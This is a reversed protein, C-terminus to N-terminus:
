ICPKDHSIWPDQICYIHAPFCEQRCLPCQQKVKLWELLCTWCFLHGCTAVTTDQRQGLCLSCKELYNAEEGEEEEEMAHLPNASLRPSNHWLAQAQSLAIGFTVLGVLLYIVNLRPSEPIRRPFYIYRLNLVRRIVDPYRGQWYFLARHVLVLVLGWPGPTWAASLAVVLRKWLAPFDGAEIDVPLLQCYEEGLTMTGASHTLLYYLIASLSRSDGKLWRHLRRPGLVDRLQEDFQRIYFEDKQQAIAVVGVDALGYKM